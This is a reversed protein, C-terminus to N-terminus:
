VSGGAERARGRAAKWAPSVRGDKHNEAVTVAGWVGFPENTVQETTGGPTILWGRAVGERKSKVFAWTWGELRGTRVQGDRSEEVRQGDSVIDFHLGPASGWVVRLAGAAGKRTRKGSQPGRSSPVFAAVAASTTFLKNKRKQRPLRGTQMAKRVAGESIGLRAAADAVSLDFGQAPETVVRDHVRKTWVLDHIAHYAPRAHVAATIFGRGPIPSPELIPNEDSWALDVVDGINKSPDDCLDRVRQYFALEDDTLSLTLREGAATTHTLTHM